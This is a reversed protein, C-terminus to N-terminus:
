VEIIEMEEVKKEEAKKVCKNFICIKTFWLITIITWLFNFMDKLFINNTPNDIIWSYNAFLIIFIWMSVQLIRPKKPCPKVLWSIFIALWLLWSIALVITDKDFTSSPLIDKHNTYLFIVYSIIWLWIIIRILSLLIDKKM